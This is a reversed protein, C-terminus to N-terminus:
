SRQELAHAAKKLPHQQQNNYFNHYILTSVYEGARVPPYKPPNGPGICSPLAEILTDANPGVFCPISYRSRGSLNAVRHYTSAFAGNTWRAMLDGINVVYSGPIPPADIWEGSRNRVQLAQVDDQRLITFCEHDTHAGNGMRTEDFPGPQSPYYLVRVLAMPTDSIADFYNEPLELALAFAHFLLRALGKVALAYETLVARFGPLDHPWQNGIKRFDGVWLQSGAQMDEIAFDFAEHQDAKGVLPNANEDGNAVYGLQHASKKVHIEMKRELPCDFLRRGQSFVKGILDEPVGHHTIYFFGVETCAKRLAVAVRAKAAPDSGHMGALDILPIHDFDTLSEPIINQPGQPSETTM